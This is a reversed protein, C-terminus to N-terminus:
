AFYIYIERERKRWYGLFKAFEKEYKKKKKKKNPLYERNYSIEIMVIIKIM